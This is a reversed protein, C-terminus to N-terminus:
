SEPTMFALPTGPSRATAIFRGPQVASKPASILGAPLRDLTAVTITLGWWEPAAVRVNEVIELIPEGLRRFGQRFGGADRIRKLPLGAQELQAATRDFYPTLAVVHDIGLAGNPHASYAPALPEAQYLVLEALESLGEIAISMRDAGLELRVGPLLVMDSIVEFGLAEWREPPDGVRVAALKV